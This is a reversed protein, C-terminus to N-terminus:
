EIRGTLTVAQNVGVGIIPGVFPLQEQFTGPDVPIDGSLLAIDANTKIEKCIEDAIAKWLARVQAEDGAGPAIGAFTLIRDVIADGLRDKDLPM